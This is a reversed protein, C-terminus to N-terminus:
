LTGGKKTEHHLSVAGEARKKQDGEAVIILMKNGLICKRRICLKKVRGSM